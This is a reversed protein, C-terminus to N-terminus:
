AELLGLPKQKQAKPVRLNWVVHEPIKFSLDYPRPLVRFNTSFSLNDWYGLQSWDGASRETQGTAFDLSSDLQDAWTASDFAFWFVTTKLGQIQLHKTLYCYILKLKQRLCQPKGTQGFCLGVGVCEGLSVLLSLFNPIFMLWTLQYKGLFFIM